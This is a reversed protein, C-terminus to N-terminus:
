TFLEEGLPLVGGEQDVVRETYNVGIQSWEHEWREVRDCEEGREGEDGQEWFDAEHTPVVLEEFFGKECAEHRKSEVVWSSMMWGVIRNGSKEEKKEAIVAPRDEVRSEIGMNVGHMRKKGVTHIPYDKNWPKEEKKKFAGEWLYKDSFRCYPVRILKEHSDKDEDDAEFAADEAELKAAQAIREKSEEINHKRKTARLATRLAAKTTQDEARLFATTSPFLKRMKRNRFPDRPVSHKRSPQTTSSMIPEFVQHQAPIFNPYQLSIKLVPM